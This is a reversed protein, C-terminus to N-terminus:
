AAIKARGARARWAALAAAAGYLVGSGATRIETADFTGTTIWNGATILVAVGVPALFAAKAKNADLLRVVQVVRDGLDEPQAPPNPPM